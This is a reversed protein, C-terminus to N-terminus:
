ITIKVSIITGKNTSKISAIGGIISSREMISHLGFSKNGNLKEKVDFGKGNDKIELILSNEEEKMTIKAAHADAYKIINSLSEQVIRYLQLENEPTLTKNYKLDTTIMFQNKDEVYDVLQKISFLLGVRDFMAPHLNRSIQRIENIISDIKTNLNSFGDKTESKLNLLEHSIGDHLDNAIRKREEETNELLQKTFMTKLEQEKKFKKRSQILAYGVIGLIIFVLITVLLTILYHNKEIQLEKLTLQQQKQKIKYKTEADVVKGKMEEDALKENAEHEEELYKFADKFNNKTLADEKLLWLVSSLTQYNGNERLIPIAKKYTEIDSIGKKSKIEYYALAGSYDELLSTSENNIAILKIEDLKQKALTFNKEDVLKKTYFTTLICKISPNNIGSKNFAKYVSDALKSFRTDKKADYLCLKSHLTLFLNDWSKEKEYLKAAINYNKEADEYRRTLVYINGFNDYVMARGVNDDIKEFSNLAQYNNKLALEQQGIANYAFSLNYYAEAQTSCSNYDQVKIEIVKNLYEIGKKNQGNDIYYNGIYNYAFGIKSEPVKNKHQKLFQEVTKLLTTDFSLYKISNHTVIDLINTASLYDKKNIKSNYYRDFTTLYEKDFFNSDNDLYTCTADLKKEIPKSYIVAKNRDVDKCSLSLLFILIFLIKNYKYKKLVM